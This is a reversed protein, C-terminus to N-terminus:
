VVAALPCDSNSTEMTDVCVHEVNIVKTMSQSSWSSYTTYSSSNCSRTASISASSSSPTPSLPRLALSTWCELASVSRAQGKRPLIAFLCFDCLQVYFRVNAVIGPRVSSILFPCKGYVCQSKPISKQYSIQLQSLNDKIFM